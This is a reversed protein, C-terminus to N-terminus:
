DKKPFLKPFQKKILMQIELSRKLTTPCALINFWQLDILFKFHKSEQPIEVSERGYFIILKHQQKYTYLEVLFEMDMLYVQFNCNIKFNKMSLVEKLYDDKLFNSNAEKTSFVSEPDIENQWYFGKNYKDYYIFNQVLHKVTKMNIEELKNVKLIEIPVELIENKEIVQINLRSNNVSLSLSCVGYGRILSFFTKFKSGHDPNHMLLYSSKSHNYLFYFKSLIESTVINQLEQKTSYLSLITHKLSKKFTKNCLTSITIELEELWKTGHIHAICPIDSIKISCTLLTSKAKSYAPHKLEFVESDIQLTHPSDAIRLYNTFSSSLQDDLDNIELSTDPISKSLENIKSLSEFIKISKSFEYEYTAMDRELELKDSKAKQIEYILDTCKRQLAQLCDINKTPKAVIESINKLGSNMKVLHKIQGTGEDEHDSKEATKVLDKTATSSYLSFYNRVRTKEALIAISAKSTHSNTLIKPKIPQNVLSPLNLKSSNSHSRM